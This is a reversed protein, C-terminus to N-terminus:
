RTGATPEGRGRIYVKTACKGYLHACLTQSVTMSHRKMGHSSIYLTEELNRELLPTDHILLVREAGKRASHQLRTSCARVM